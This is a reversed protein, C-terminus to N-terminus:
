YLDSNSAVNIYVGWSSPRSSSLIGCEFTLYLIVVPLIQAPLDLNAQLLCSQEWALWDRM